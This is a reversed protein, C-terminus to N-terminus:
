MFFATPAATVALQIEPAFSIGAEEEDEAPMEVEEVLLTEEELSTVVEVLELECDDDDAEASLVVDDLEPDLVLWDVVVEDSEETEDETEEDVVIEEDSDETEDDAVM